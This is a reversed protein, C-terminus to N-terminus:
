FRGKLSPYIHQMVCGTEQCVSPILALSFDLWSSMREDRAFVVGLCHGQPKWRPKLTWSCGRHGLKRADHAVSCYFLSDGASQNKKKRKLWLLRLHGPVGPIFNWFCIHTQVPWKNCRYVSSVVVPRVSYVTCTLLYIFLYMNHTTLSMASNLLQMQHSLRCLSSDIRNSTKTVIWILSRSQKSSLHEFVPPNRCQPWKIFQLQLRPSVRALPVVDIRDDLTIDTTSVVASPPRAPQLLDVVWDVLCSLFTESSSSVM